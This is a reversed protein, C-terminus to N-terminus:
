KKLSKSALGTKCFMRNGSFIKSFFKALFIIKLQKLTVHFSINQVLYAIFQEFNKLITQLM